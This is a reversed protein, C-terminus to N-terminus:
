LLKVPIHTEEDLSLSRLTLNIQSKELGWFIIYIYIGDTINLDIWLQAIYKARLNYSKVPLFGVETKMRWANDKWVKLIVASNKVGM